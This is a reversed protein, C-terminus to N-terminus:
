GSHPAKGGNVGGKRYSFVLFSEKYERQMQLFAQQAQRRSLFLGLVTPGSGSMLANEAGLEVLQHKIAMIEPHESLSVSELVNNMKRAISIMDCNNWAALFAATDPPSAVNERRFMQYVARTSIQFDPKVLVFTLEPGEALPSLIEGRGRALATGGMICFSVDSGIRAGLELMANLELQLGFLDNIGTIVAAADTSGGALGAGVPINKEIYIQLGAQLAFKDYMLRAAQYALNEEDQPVLPSNSGVRIGSGGRKLSIKDTLGIQHMVTELEHYGDDRKGLVNLTLNVKAPAELMCASAPSALNM